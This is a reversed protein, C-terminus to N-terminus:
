WWIEPAPHVCRTTMWCKPIVAIEAHFLEAGLGDSSGGTPPWSGTSRDRTSLRMPKRTAKGGYGPQKLNCRLPVFGYGSIMCYIFCPMIVVYSYISYMHLEYTYTHYKILTYIFYTFEKKAPFMDPLGLWVVLWPHHVSFFRKAVQNHERISAEYWSGVRNWCILQSNQAQQKM